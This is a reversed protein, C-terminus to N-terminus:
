EKGNKVPAFGFGMIENGEEDDQLKEIVLEVEQGIKLSWLDNSFLLSNVRIGDPLHVWGVCFPVPGKYYGAPPLTIVSLAYIKGRRSLKINNMHGNQCNVCVRNTPFYIEGCKPCKSAILQPKDSPSTTITWLGERVPVQKKKNDTM